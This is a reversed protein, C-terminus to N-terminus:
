HEQGQMLPQPATLAPRLAPSTARAEARLTPKLRRGRNALPTM